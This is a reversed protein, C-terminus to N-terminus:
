HNKSPVVPCKCDWCKQYFTLDWINKNVSNKLLHYFMLKWPLVWLTGTGRLAYPCKSTERQEVNLLTVWLYVRLKVAKVEGWINKPLGPHYFRVATRAIRNYWNWTWLPLATLNMQPKAARITLMLYRPWSPVLNCSLDNSDGRFHEKMEHSFFALRSAIEKGGSSWLDLCLDKLSMMPM